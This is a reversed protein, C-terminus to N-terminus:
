TIKRLKTRSCSCGRTCNISTSVARLLGIVNAQNELVPSLAKAVDDDFPTGQKPIVHFPKPPTPRALSKFNNDIPDVSMALAIIGLIVLAVAGWEHCCCWCCGM